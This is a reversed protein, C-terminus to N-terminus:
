KSKFLSKEPLNNIIVPCEGGMQVSYIIEDNVKKIDYVIGFRLDDRYRFNVFDGKKFKSEIIIAEKKKKFFM